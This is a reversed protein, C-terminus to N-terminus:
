FLGLLWRELALAISGPKAGKITADVQLADILGQKWHGSGHKANATAVLRRKREFLPQGTPSLLERIEKTLVWLILSPEEGEELLKRLIKISRSMDGLLVPEVLDFLQYRSEDTLVTQVQSLTLKGEGYILFLKEISQKISFLNNEGQSALYQLAAKDASMSHKALRSAVWIPLKSLEIPWIPLFVAFNLLRKFWATQQQASSLKGCRILVCVDEKPEYSSLVKVMSEPFKDLLVYLEICKKESFLSLNDCSAEFAEAPFQASDIVFCRREHYAFRKAAERIEDAAEDLLLTEEGSILYLPALGKSLQSTLQDRNIKM